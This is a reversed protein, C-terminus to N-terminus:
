GGHLYYKVPIPIGGGVPPRVGCFDGGEIPTAWVFCDPEMRVAYANPYGAAVGAAIADEASSFGGRQEPSEYIDFNHVVYSRQFTPREILHTAQETKVFM